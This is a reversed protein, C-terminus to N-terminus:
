GPSSFASGRRGSATCRLQPVLVDGVVMGLLEGGFEHQHGQLLPEEGAGGGKGGRQLPVLLRRCVALRRVAVDLGM